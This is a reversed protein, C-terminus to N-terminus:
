GQPQGRQPRDSPNIPALPQYAMEAEEASGAEILNVQTAEAVYRDYLKAIIQIKDNNQTLPENLELALRAALAECYLEEYLPVDVIDAVFQFFLPGTAATILYPKQVEWDSFRMGGTTNHYVTAPAKIDQVATRIFGYPLRYLQRAAGTPGYQIPNLITLTASAAALTGLDVWPAGSAPDNNTNANTTSIYVHGAVKYVLDGAYYTTSGSWVDATIAGYYATWFASGVAPTNGVNSGQLSQWIAGTSDSVLAFAAYTTGIAWAAPSVLVANTTIARLVVRRKSFSWVVRRLEARRTKDYAFNAEAAPKSNDTFATIRPSGVHQLARNAIDVPTQFAAVM